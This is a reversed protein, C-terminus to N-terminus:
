EPFVGQERMGRIWGVNRDIGVGGIFGWRGKVGIGM